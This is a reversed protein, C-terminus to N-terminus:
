SDARNCYVTARTKGGYTCTFLTLDYHGATMEEIAQPELVDSAVVQYKTTNGNMDTFFVEAGLDLSPIKGFHRAYNHAMLVLDNGNVTGAYRCPAIRLSPYDWDAMIPLDLELAPISLYGIYTHGDIEVEKMTDSSGEPILVMNPYEVPVIPIPGTEDASNEIQEMLLPMVADAAKQAQIAEWQNYLFLALAGAIMLAGLAMFCKGLKNM